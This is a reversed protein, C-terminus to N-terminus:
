MSARSSKGSMVQMRQMKSMRSINPSLPLWGERVMDMIPQFVHTDGASKDENALKKGTSAKRPYILNYQINVLCGIVYEPPLLHLFATTDNRM